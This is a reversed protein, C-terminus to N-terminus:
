FMSQQFLYIFLIFLFVSLANVVGSVMVIGAVVGVVAVFAVAFEM